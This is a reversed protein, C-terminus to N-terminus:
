GGQTLVQRYHYLVEQYREVADVVRLRGADDEEAVAHALSLEALDQSVLYTSQMLMYCTHSSFARVIFLVMTYIYTTCSTHSTIHENHHHAPVFSFGPLVASVNQEPALIKENM